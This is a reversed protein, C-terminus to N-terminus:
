WREDKSEVLIRGAMFNRGVLLTTGSYNLAVDVIAEHNEVRIKMSVVPLHSSENSFGTFMLINVLPLSIKKAQLSFTVTDGTVNVDDAPITTMSAGSDLMGEMYIDFDPFQVTVMHPLVSPPTPISEPTGYRERNAARLKEYQVKTMKPHQEVTGFPINVKIAADTVSRVYCAFETGGSHKKMSRIFEPETYMEHALKTADSHSVPGAMKVATNGFIAAKVEANIQELHQSAVILGLGFQRATSLLRETQYDFYQAAEDVIVLSTERKGPPRRYAASLAQAIFFRGLIPGASGLKQQSTNILVIKKEQLAQLPDFSNLPAAFMQRFTDNALLAFLRRSISSKTLQMPGQSFFHSEFFEQAIDDLRRIYLVFPSEKVSKSRDDLVQRLTNITANPIVRMLRLLYTVTTSQHPTLSNDIATFIYTFLDDTMADGEGMQLLNLAPPKPDEPDIIVLNDYLVGDDPNFFELQSIADLMAGMSDIIWISMGDRYEPDNMFHMFLHLLAQTKGHGSPAFIAM